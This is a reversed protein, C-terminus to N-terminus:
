FRDDRENDRGDDALDDGHDVVHRVGEEDTLHVIGVLNGGCRKGHRGEDHQRTDGVKETDAAGAQDGSTEAGAVTFLCSFTGCEANPACSEDCQDVTDNEIGGTGRDERQESGIFVGVAVAGVIEKPRDGDATNGGNQVGTEGVEYARLAIGLFGADTKREATDHIDDEVGNEDERETKANFARCDGGHEGVGDGHDIEDAEQAFVFFGGDDIEGEFVEGYRVSDRPLDEEDTQGAEDHEEHARDGVENEIFQDNGVGVLGDRAHTDGFLDVNEGERDGVTHRLANQRQDTVVVRRLIEVTHARDDFRGKGVGEDDGDRARQEEIEAGNREDTEENVIRFGDSVTLVEQLRDGDGAGRDGNGHHDDRDELCRSALELRGDKGEDSLASKIDREHEDHVAGVSRLTDRPCRGNGVREGHEDRKREEDGIPELEATHHLLELLDFRLGFQYLSKRKVRFM